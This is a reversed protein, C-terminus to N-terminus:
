LYLHIAGSIVTIVAGGLILVTVAARAWPAAIM